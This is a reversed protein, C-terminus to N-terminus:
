AAVPEPEAAVAPYPMKKEACAQRLAAIMKNFHAQDQEPAPIFLYERPDIPTDGPYEAAQVRRLILDFALTVTGGIPERKWRETGTRLYRVPKPSAIITRAM